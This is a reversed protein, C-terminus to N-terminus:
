LPEFSTTMQYPANNGTSNQIALVLENVHLVYDAPLKPRRGDELADALEAIGRSIDQDHSLYRRFPRKKGTREYEKDGAGVISKLLEHRRFLPYKEVRFGMKSYKEIHVPAHYNWCEDISLVGDDGIIRLTHNYPAIISCTLRAVVGTEFELCAVSFDPTDFELPEGPRVQKNPILVRAFATVTKVPGFFAPLWTLYYGAHEMTCGVQFEDEYPWPAGSKSFWKHPEEQHIPGEDIEAYVARVQGIAKNELADVITQATEGLLGCPASSIYLGRKSALQILEKAQSLEMSLPKESYLHKDALLSAKSVEFHSGPNTLNVVIEVQPDALLEELSDYLNVSYCSGFQLARQKNRDFVGLLELQPHNKLTEIYYDAVFGVGVFAIKHKMTRRPPDCMNM